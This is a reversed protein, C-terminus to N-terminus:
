FPVPQALLGTGPARGSLVRCFDVADATLTDGGSGSAYEGGAPGTLTLVFPQGHRRSWEAVVDAVIRGDHEATLVLERGTARAIDIRHMWPDRTLIVDLLYGMRWTEPSGGVNERLPMRRFLANAGTRFRTARSSVVLAREILQATTLSDQDKVQMATMVDIVAAGSRKATRTASRMRRVLTRYSSFDTMMGVCHGAVARVDWEPCDTPRAWETPSLSRLQDILLAYEQGALQRAEQRKVPPIASVPTPATNM